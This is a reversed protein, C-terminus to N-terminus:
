GFGSDGEVGLPADEGVVASPSYDGGGGGGGTGFLGWGCLMFGRGGNGDGDRAEVAGAPHFGAWCTDDGGCHRVGEDGGFGDDLVVISCPM